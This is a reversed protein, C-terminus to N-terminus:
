NYDYDDEYDSYSDARARRGYGLLCYNCDCETDDAAIAAEAAEVATSTPYIYGYFETAAYNPM